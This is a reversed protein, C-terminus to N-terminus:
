RVLLEEVSGDEKGSWEEQGLDSEEVSGDEQESDAKRLQDM